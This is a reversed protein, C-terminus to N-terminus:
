LMGLTVSNWRKEYYYRPTNQCIASQRSIYNISEPILIVRRTRLRPSENFNRCDSYLIGQYIHPISSYFSVSLDRYYQSCRM